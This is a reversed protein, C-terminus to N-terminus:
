GDKSLFLRKRCGRFYLRRGFCIYIRRCNTTRRDITSSPARIENVFLGLRGRARTHPAAASASSASGGAENFMLARRWLVKKLNISAEAPQFLLLQEEYNQVLAECNRLREQTESLEAAKERREAAMDILVKMSAEFCQAQNLLAAYAPRTLRSRELFAPCTGAVECLSCVYRDGFILPHTGLPWCVASDTLCNECAKKYRIFESAEREQRESEPRARVCGECLPRPPKDDPLAWLSAAEGPGLQFGQRGCSSCPAAGDEVRPAAARRPYHAM